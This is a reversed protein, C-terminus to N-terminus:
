SLFAEAMEKSVSYISLSFLPLPIFSPPPGPFSFQSLRLTPLTQSALHSHLLFTPTYTGRKWRGADSEWGALLLDSWM